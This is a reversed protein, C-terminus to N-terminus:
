PKLRRSLDPPLLWGRAMLWRAAVATCAQGANIGVLVLVQAAAAAWPSGGGLLVGIYAGPLTVLGVTRTQDLAPILGEHLTPSVVEGIATGHEFGLTLYAEYQPIGARLEAFARRAVLTHVSMMNGVVISAIPVISAGDFPATGTAFIIVLVPLAGALMALGAAAFARPSQLDSRRGTTYVGILFMLTVFAIALWAQRLAVGIILSVALLQVGARVAAWPISRTLPLRGWLSVGAGLAVLLALALGLPWGIEVTM